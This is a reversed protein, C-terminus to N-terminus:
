KKAMPRVRKAADGSAISEGVILRMVNAHGPFNRAGAGYGITEVTM